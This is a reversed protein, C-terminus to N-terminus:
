QEDHRGLATSGPATADLASRMQDCARQLLTVANLLEAANVDGSANTRPAEGHLAVLTVLEATPVRILRGLTLIRTPWRGSRVLEYATTRGIGLIRSATSVDIVAPLARIEDTTLPASPIGERSPTSL